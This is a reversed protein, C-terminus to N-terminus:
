IFRIEDIAGVDIYRYYNDILKTYFTISYFSKNGFGYERAIPSHIIPGLQEHDGTLIIHGDRKLLCSIPIFSETETSHGAEDIFVYDFCKNGGLNYIRAANILTTTVISRKMIDEFTIHSFENNKVNAYQYLSERVNKMNYSYSIYRLLNARLVPAENEILKYTITNVADNSSACVLIKLMKNCHLQFM